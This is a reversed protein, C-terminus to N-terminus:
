TCYTVILEYSELGEFPPAMGVYPLSMAGPIHSKEYVSAARSDIILMNYGADMKEKVELVSIRPIEPMYSSPPLAGPDPTQAVPPPTPRGLVYIVGALLAISVIVIGLITLLAKRVNM